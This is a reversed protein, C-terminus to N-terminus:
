ILKNFNTLARKAEVRSEYNPCSVSGCFNIDDNQKHFIDICSILDEIDLEIDQQVRKDTKHQKLVNEHSDQKNYCDACTKMTKLADKKIQVRRENVRDDILIDMDRNARCKKCRSLASDLPLQEGCGICDHYLKKEINSYFSTQIKPQSNKGRVNTMYQTPDILQFAIKSQESCMSDYFDVNKLYKEINKDVDHATVKRDEIIETGDITVKRSISACLEDMSNADFEPGVEYPTDKFFEDYDDRLKKKKEAFVDVFDPPLTFEKMKAYYKAYDTLKKMTKERLNQFIIDVMKRRQEDDKTKRCLEALEWSELLSIDNDVVTLIRAMLKAIQELYYDEDYQYIPNGIVYKPNIARQGTGVKKSGSQATKVVLFSYRTDKQALPKGYEINERISAIIHPPMGKTPVVRTACRPQPDGYSTIPKKVGKEQILDCMPMQYTGVKHLIEYALKFARSIDSCESLLDILQKCVLQKLKNSDGRVYAIGTASFKYESALPVYMSGAYKKKRLLLLFEYMKEYEQEIFHSFKNELICNIEDQKRFSQESFMQAILWSIITNLSEIRPLTDNDYCDEPTPISPPRASRNIGRYISLIFDKSDRIQLTKELYKKFWTRMYLIMNAYDKTFGFSFYKDDETIRQIFQSMIDIYMSWYCYAYVRPIMAEKFFKESGFRQSILTKLTKVATSWDMNSFVNDDDVCAITQTSSSAQSPNVFAPESDDQADTYIFQIHKKSYSNFFDLCQRYFVDGRKSDFVVSFDQVDEKFKPFVKQMKYYYWAGFVSDTDGYSTVQCGIFSLSPTVCHDIYGKSWELIIRGVNTISEALAFKSKFYANFFGYVSNMILKLAQQLIDYMAIQASHYIYANNTTYESKPIQKRLIELQEVHQAKLRKFEQRKKSLDKEAKPFIGERVKESIFIPMDARQIEMKTRGMLKLAPMVVKSFILNMKEPSIDDKRFVCAKLREEGSEPDKFKYDSRDIGLDHRLKEIEKEKREREEEVKLDYKKKEVDDGDNCPDYIDDDSLVLSTPAKEENIVDKDDDKKAFFSSISQQNSPKKIKKKRTVRKKKPKVARKRKKRTTTTTTTTTKLFFPSSIKSKQDSDACSFDRDGVFDFDDDSCANDFFSSVKASSSTAAKLRKGSTMKTSSTISKKCQKTILQEIYAKRSSWASRVNSTALNFYDSMNQTKKAKSDKEFDELKEAPGQEALYLYKHLMERNEPAILAEKVKTLEAKSEDDYDCESSDLYHIAEELKDFQRVVNDVRSSTGYWVDKREYICEDFPIGFREAFKKILPLIDNKKNHPILTSICANILCMISPYLSKLDLVDNPDHKRIIPAIVVAGSQTEGPKKTRPGEFDPIYHKGTPLLTKPPRKQNPYFQNARVNEIAQMYDRIGNEKPYLNIGNKVDDINHWFCTILFQIGRDLLHQMSVMGYSGLLSIFDMCGLVTILRTMLEVDRNCYLLLHNRGDKYGFMYPVRAHDMDLKQEGLRKLSIKDLSYGGKLGYGMYSRVFKMLDFNVRGPIEVKDTSSRVSARNARYATDDRAKTHVVGHFERFDRSYCYYNNRKPDRPKFETSCKKTYLSFCRKLEYITDFNDGNFHTIIDPNIGVVMDEASEMMSKEDMTNCTRIQYKNDKNTHVSFMADDTERWTFVISILDGDAAAKSLPTRNEFVRSSLIHVGKQIIEDGLDPNPFRIQSAINEVKEGQMTLSELSAMEDDFLWFFMEPKKGQIEGVSKKISKRSTRLLLDVGYDHVDMNKSRNASSFYSPPRKNISQVDAINWWTFPQLEKDAMVRVTYDTDSEYNQSFPFEKRTKYERRIAWNDMARYKESYDSQTKPSTSTPYEFAQRIYRILDTSSATIKLFPYAVDMNYGVQKNYDIEISYILDGGKGAAESNSKMQKLAKEGYKQQRIVKELEDQLNAKLSAIEQQMQDDHGIYQELFKPLVCYMYPHFDTFEVRVVNGYEDIGHAFFVLHRKWGAKCNRYDFEKNVKVVFFNLGDQKNGPVSQFFSSAHERPDVNPPCTKTVPERRRFRDIGFEKYKTELIHKQLDQFTACRNRIFVNPRFKKSSVQDYIANNVSISSTAAFQRSYPTTSTTTTNTNKQDIKLVVNTKFGKYLSPENHNDVNQPFKGYTHVYHNTNQKKSPCGIKNRVPVYANTNKGKAKEKSASQSLKQNKPTFAVDKQLGRKLSTTSTRSVETSCPAFTPWQGNRLKFECHKKRYVVPVDLNDIQEFVYEVVEKYTISCGGPQNLEFLMELYREFIPHMTKLFNQARANGPECAKRLALRLSKHEWMVRIDNEKFDGKLIEIVENLEFM